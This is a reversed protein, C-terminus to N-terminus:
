RFAEVIAVIIIAIITGVVGIVFMIAYYMGLPM